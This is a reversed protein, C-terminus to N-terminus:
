RFSLKFCQLTHWYPEESPLALPNYYLGGESLLWDIWEEKVAKIKLPVRLPPGFDSITWRSSPNQEHARLSNLSENFPDNIPQFYLIDKLEESYKFFDNKALSSINIIVMAEPNDQNLYEAGFEMIERILGTGRYPDGDKLAIEEPVPIYPPNILILDFKESLSRLGKGWYTVFETQPRLYPLINLKATRLAYMSIDTINLKELNPLRSALLASNHGGGVGIELVSKLRPNKLIGYNELIDHLYLTDINTTWVDRDFEADWSTIIGRYETFRKNQALLDLIKASVNPLIANRIFREPTILNSSPVILLPNINRYLEQYNPTEQEFIGPLSTNKITSYHITKLDNSIRIHLPIHNPRISPLVDIIKRAPFDAVPIKTQYIDKLENLQNYNIFKNYM